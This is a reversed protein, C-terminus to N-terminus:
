MLYGKRARRRYDERPTNEWTLFKLLMAVESGLLSGLSIGVAGLSPRKAHTNHQTHFTIQRWSRKVLTGLCDLRAGCSLVTIPSAMKTNSM